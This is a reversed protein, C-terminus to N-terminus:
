KVYSASALSDVTRRAKQDKSHSDVKRSHEVEGCNQLLFVHLHHLWTALKKRSIPQGDEM